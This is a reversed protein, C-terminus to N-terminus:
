AEDLYERLFLEAMREKRTIGLWKRSKQCVGCRPRGCDFPSMLRCRGIYRDDIWDFFDSWHMQGIRRALVNATRRRREARDM